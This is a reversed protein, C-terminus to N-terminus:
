ITLQTLASTSLTESSINTQLLQLFLYFSNIMQQMNANELAKYFKVRLIMIIFLMGRVETELNYLFTEGHESNNNQRYLRKFQLQFPIQFM